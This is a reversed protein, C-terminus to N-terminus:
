DLRDQRSIGVPWGQEVISGETLYTSKLHLYLTSSGDDHSLTIRNALNRLDYGGCSSYQGTSDTVTGTRAALIPAGEPVAFDYAYYM